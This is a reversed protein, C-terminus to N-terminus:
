SATISVFFHSIFLRIPNGDGIHTGFSGRMWLPFIERDDRDYGRIAVAQRFNWDTAEFKM